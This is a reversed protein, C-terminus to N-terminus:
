RCHEYVTALDCHLPRDLYHCAKDSEESIKNLGM